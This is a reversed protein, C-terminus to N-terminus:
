AKFKACSARQLNTAKASSGSAGTSRIANARESAADYVAVVDFGEDNLHRAINAGMRGVGVVGIKYDSNAM